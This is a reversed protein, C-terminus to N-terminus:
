CVLTEIIQCANMEVSSTEYTAKLILSTDAVSTFDAHDIETDYLVAEGNTVAVTINAGSTDDPIDHYQGDADFFEEVEGNYTIALSFVVNGQANSPTIVAKVQLGQEETLSVVLCLKGDTSCNKPTENGEESVPSPTKSPSAEPSTSSAPDDAVVKSEDKKDPTTAEEGCGWVLILLLTTFWHRTM